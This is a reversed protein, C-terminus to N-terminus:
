SFLFGSSRVLLVPRMGRLKILKFLLKLKIIPKFILQKVVLQQKLILKFLQKIILKIFPKFILLFILQQKWSLSEVM